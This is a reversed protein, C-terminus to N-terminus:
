IRILLPIGVNTPKTTTGAYTAVADAQPNAGQGGGVFGDSDYAHGSYSDGRKINASFSQLSQLELSGPVRLTYDIPRVFDTILPLRFTTSGDGASFCGKLTYYNVGDVTVFTSSWALDSVISGTQLGQVWAWLRPYDTRSIVQGLLPLANLESGLFGNFTEGVKAMGPLDNEINWKGNAKFIKANECQGLIIQSQDSKFLFKDAGPAQLVANIHSGGNSFLYFFSYDSVTSLSPFTITIKTTSGQIFIAKGVDTLSLTTDSTIVRGYSFISSPIGAPTVAIVQPTFRVIFKENAEFQDGAVILHFGGAVDQQYTPNTNGSSNPVMTGAGQREISYNWGAWDTNVYATAGSVLGSTIDAELYEDLKIKVSNVNSNVAQSFSNRVIGTPTNDPSEWLKINYIHGALCNYTFSIQIPNGYPKTPQQSELLVSPASADYLAFVFFNSTNELTAQSSVSIQMPKFYFFGHV